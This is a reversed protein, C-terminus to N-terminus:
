KENKGFEFANYYTQESFTYEWNGYIGILNVEFNEYFKRIKNHFIERDITPIPYSYKIFKSSFKSNNNPTINLIRTLDAFGKKVIKDYDYIEDNRRFIEAQIIYASRNGSVNNLFSVRSIDIDSDYIYM